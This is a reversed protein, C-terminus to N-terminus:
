PQLKLMTVHWAMQVLLTSTSDLEINTRKACASSNSLTFTNQQSQTPVSSSARDDKSNDQDARISEARELAQVAVRSLKDQLDKNTSVVKKTELCVEVALKYQALAEESEGAEDLELAETLLNYARSLESLGAEKSVHQPSSAGTSSTLLDDARELYQAARESLGPQSARLSVALQLLRATERYLFAAQEVQGARESEVARPALLRINELVSSLDQPSDSM